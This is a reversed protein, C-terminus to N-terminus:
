MVGKHVKILEDGVIICHNQYFIKLTSITAIAKAYKVLDPETAGQSIAELRLRDVREDLMTWMKPRILADFAQLIDLLTYIGRNM